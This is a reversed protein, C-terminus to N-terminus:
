PSLGLGCPVPLLSGSESWLHRADKTVVVHSSSVTSLALLNALFVWSGMGRLFDERPTRQCSPPLLISISVCPTVHLTSM